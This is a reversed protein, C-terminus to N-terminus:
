GAMTGQTSEEQEEADLDVIAVEGLRAFRNMHVFPDGGDLLFERGQRWQVARGKSIDISPILM